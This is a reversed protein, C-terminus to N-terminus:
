SERRGRRLERDIDEETVPRRGLVDWANAVLGIGWGGIVWIPWFYGGPTTLWWVLVLFINVVVYIVAHTALDRKARIRKLALQREEDHPPHSQETM